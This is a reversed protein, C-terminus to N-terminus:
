AVAIRRVGCVVDRLSAAICRQWAPLLLENWRETITHLVDWIIFLVSLKCTVYCHCTYACGSNCRLLMHKYCKTDLMCPVHAMNDDTAQRARCYKEVNDWLTSAKLFFFTILSLIHTRIKGVDKTQFIEWEVFFHPLYSLFHINTKM